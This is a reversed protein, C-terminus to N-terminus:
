VCWGCVIRGCTPCTCAYREDSFEAFQIENDELETSRKQWERCAEDCNWDCGPYKENIELVIQYCKCDESM